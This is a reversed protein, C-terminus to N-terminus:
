IHKWLTLKKEKCKEGGSKIDEIIIMREDNNNIWLLDFLATFESGLKEIFSRVVEVYELDVNSLSITTSYREAMSLENFINEDYNGNLVDELTIVKTKTFEIFDFTLDEGILGKLMKPNNTKYLVKSAMEWKRPDANPTEGNFKTRLAAERKYLIYAYIAPHIKPYKLDDKYDLREYVDNPTIAWNLWEDVTTNIYIHNFRNFLPEAMKNAALSEELDNGAAVVRANKPLKWIGNIEKDLIINFAMGQISPLANTLEDFFVIHIKNPEAECKEKLKKYWTPPVDIMEGTEANYVSKGNLSDPTANRLYVIEADPDFQKVRASKGDSSKGHLFLAIDSELSGRMLDENNVEDYNFGYNLKNYSINNNKVITKSSIIEKSFFIDLYKKIDTDEFVGNYNVSNNFQIGAFLINKSIAKNNREDILWKIPEVEVWVYDGPNYLKNNSLRLRLYRSNDKVRVYKKNKYLYEEFDIGEFSSSYAEQNQSDVTYRKGTKTLRNNKYEKNLKRQLTKSAVYQPYEGYEVEFVGDIMQKNSALNKIDLYNCVPRAGITRRNPESYYTDCIIVDEDEDNTVTWYSGIRNKLDKENKYYEDYSSSAGLLFAFDTLPAKTGIKKFVDLRTEETIYDDEELFTFKVM